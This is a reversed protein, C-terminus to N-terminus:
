RPQSIIFEFPAGRLEGFKKSQDPTLVGSLRAEADQNIQQLRARMATQNASPNGTVLLARQIERAQTAFSERRFRAIEAQQAPTLELQKVMNPTSLADLGQYQVLLQQFRTQQPESLLGKLSQEVFQQEAETLEPMAALFHDLANDRGLSTAPVRRSQLLQRGMAQLGTRQQPTLRLESRVGDLVLLQFPNVPTPTFTREVAQRNFPATTVQSWAPSVPCLVLGIFSLWGIWAVQKTM